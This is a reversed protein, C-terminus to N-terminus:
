RWVVLKVPEGPKLAAGPPLQNLTLFREMKSDDYAMRAALSALSDGAAVKVVQIRRTRISGAEQPSLRRVSAAVPAVMAGQGQPAVSILTFALQATWRYVTLTADVAGGNTQARASGVLAEQGNISTAQM